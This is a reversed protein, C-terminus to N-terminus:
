VTVSRHIELMEKQSKETEMERSVIGVQEKMVDVKETLARWINIIKFGRGSFELM